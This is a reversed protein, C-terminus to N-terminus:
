WGYPNYHGGTTGCVNDGPNRSNLPYMHIHYGGAKNALGELNVDVRAVAGPLGDSSTLIDGTVTDEDTPGWWKDETTVM